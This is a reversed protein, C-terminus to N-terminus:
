TEIDVSLLTMGQGSLIDTQESGCVPCVVFSPDVLTRRHCTRCDLRLPDIEVRLAAGEALTQEAALPFAFELAQPDVGSLVGLRVSVGLIRRAGHEKAVTCAQDVLAQAITLEHM